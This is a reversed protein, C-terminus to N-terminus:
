NKKALMAQPMPTSRLKSTKMKKKTKRRTKPLMPPKSRFKSSTPATLIERTAASLRTNQFPM